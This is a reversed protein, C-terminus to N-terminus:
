CSTSTITITPNPQSALNTGETYMTYCSLGSVTNAVSVPIFAEQTASTAPSNATAAQGPGIIQYDATTTGAAQALGADAKPYGSPVVTAYTVTADEVQISTPVPTTVLWKGHAMASTSSLSGKVANLSAIRADKGLGVFKPLAIAALIGLILIVVILEILTFGAQIKTATKHMTIGMHSHILGAGFRPALFQM